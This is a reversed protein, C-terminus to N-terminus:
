LKLLGTRFRGGGLQGRFTPREAESCKCLHPLPILKMHPYPAPKVGERRGRGKWGARRSATGAAAGASNESRQSAEQCLGRDKGRPHPREVEKREFLRPHQCGWISADQKDFFLGATLAPNRSRSFWLGARRQYRAPLCSKCFNRRQPASRVLAAGGGGKRDPGSADGGNRATAKQTARETVEGM